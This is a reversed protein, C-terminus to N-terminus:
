HGFVVGSEKILALFDICDVSVESLSCVLPIKYKAKNVPLEKQRSENSVLRHGSVCASGVILLDNESVGAPNYKDGAIGLLAKIDTAKKIADAGIKISLIKAKRLWEHCDPSRKKVEELAVECIVLESKDIESALWRWMAPFQDLPYHDWARIISSADFAKM